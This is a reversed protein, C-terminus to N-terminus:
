RKEGSLPKASEQQTKAERLKIVDDMMPSNGIMRKSAPQGYLEPALYKGRRNEPKMQEPEAREPYTQMYKDNRQATVQWSIKQGANGGAIEFRSNEMEKSVYIGPAPAGIATLIYSFDINIADFYSPMEIVAKGNADLVINGRYINLVEDSEVAFHKLFKNEPDQPHDITFAKTGLATMDGIALIGTLSAVGYGGPDSNGLVGVFGGNGTVGAIDDVGNDTAINLGFVGTGAPQETQGLVGFYGLGTVGPNVIPPVATLNIGLTPNQHLGFVGSGGAVFSQGSTGQFGNGDVGSGGTTRLNNGFVGAFGTATATVEGSVGSGAGTSVGLIASNNAQNTNTSAEIAAFQNAAVTSEALIAVGNGGTVGARIAISNITGNGNPLTAQVPGSDATIQRGAGAGGFDYAADLTGGGTGAPGQPGVPGAPGAPGTAGPAGAAGAPGVLSVGTGWGGATKPGFITNTSTNIYFDGIAGQGATPNSTGNLVTKGDLGNAGAPGAPGQAGAPGAPGAPGAVGQAGAPGAPGAPGAVGAPGQAGAPGAPGAPGQSGAPGTAGTAGAPGAPGQAGAPGAPGQPGAAGRCDLADWFGDNNVDESPDTIGNGNTDWCNLGGGPGAPGQPGTPGAPGAPGTLGAPGQPGAPGAPGTEGAPGQAGTAGAPGAPGAPGAEGQPGAPGAPGAPGQPGVSGGGNGSTEAYFAYPVSLLENTGLDTYNTGGSPDVEVKVFQNATNWTIDSFTGSVPTGAGIKLTFLGFANTTATHRESYQVPGTSSGQLISIRVAVNQNVFVSGSANRAIAQYNIGDPVSTQAFSAQSFLLLALAACSLVFKKM